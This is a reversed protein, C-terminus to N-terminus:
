RDFKRDDIRRESGWTIIATETIQAGVVSSAVQSEFDDAMLM